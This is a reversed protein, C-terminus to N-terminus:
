MQMKPAGIVNQANWNCKVTYFKLMWILLPLAARNKAWKPLAHPSPRLVCTHRIFQGYDISRMNGGERCHTDHLYHWIWGTMQKFPQSYPSMNQMPFNESHFEAKERWRIKVRSQSLLPPDLFSLNYLSGSLLQCTIIMHHQFSICNFNLTPMIQQAVACCPWAFLRVVMYFGKGPPETCLVFTKFGNGCQWCLTFM